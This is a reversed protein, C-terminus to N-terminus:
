EAPAALLEMVKEAVAASSGPNQGTVLKGDVAIHSAWDAGKTFNAGHKILTEELLLPVKQTLQVVGEESDTFGTVTKGKMFEAMRKGCLVMPGHCVASAVKGKEIMGCVIKELAGCNLFDECTGHGGPLFVADYDDVKVDEVPLSHCFQGMASADHLFKKCNDNFFGEGMSGADIPIPGGKISAITVNCAESFIYYPTAIEELWVGTKHDGGMVSASTSIICVNLKNEAADAM